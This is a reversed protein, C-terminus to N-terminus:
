IGTKPNQYYVRDNAVDLEEQVVAQYLLRVRNLALKRRIHNQIKM